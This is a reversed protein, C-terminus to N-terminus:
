IWGNISSPHCSIAQVGVGLFDRTQGGASEAQRDSQLHRRKAPPPMQLQSLSSIDSASSIEVDNGLHRDAIANSCYMLGCYKNGDQVQNINSSCKFGLSGLFLSPDTSASGIQAAKQLLATASMNAAAAAAQTQHTTTQQQQSSYLSPVNVSVLQHHHSATAAAEKVDTFPLSASVIAPAEAANNSSQKNHGFVWNFHYDSPPPHDGYMAESSVSGLQQIEQLNSGVTEHGQSGPAMWLSLSRRTQDITEDAGGGPIPKFISSFHQAVSPGLPNGMFHYSISGNALSNMSSAANVRATEEALADCFARHTIFSDRRHGFLIWVCYILKYLLCFFM